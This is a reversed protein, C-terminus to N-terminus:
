VWSARLVWCSLLLLAALLTAFRAAAPLDIGAAAAAEAIWRRINAEEAQRAEIACPPDEPTAFFLDLHHGGLHHGSAMDGLQSIIDREATQEKTREWRSVLNIGEGGNIKNPGSGVPFWTFAEM